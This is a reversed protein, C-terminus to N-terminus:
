SVDEDEKWLLWNLAIQASLVTFAVAFVGRSLDHSYATYILLATSVLLAVIVFLLTIGLVAQRGARRLATTHHQTTTHASAIRAM